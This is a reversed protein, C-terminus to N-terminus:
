GHNYQSMPLADKLSKNENRLTYLERNRETREQNLKKVCEELQRAESNVDGLNCQTGRFALAVCGGPELSRVAALVTNLVFTKGCGGRADVIAQLPIDDKVSKLITDFVGQQSGTLKQTIEKFVRAVIDPRDQPTQTEGLQTSIEPWQTNCTMTIFYDPKHFKRCIAM